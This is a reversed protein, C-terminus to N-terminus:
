GGYHTWVLFKGSSTRVVNTSNTAGSVASSFSFKKILTNALPDYEFYDMM